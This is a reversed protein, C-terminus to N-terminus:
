ASTCSQTSVAAGSRPAGLDANLEKSALAYSTGPRDPAIAFAMGVVVGAQSVLPGGSDGPHLDSALIFVDRRTQHQDYLDRGVAVVEQRIAAPAVVINNVGNPHGFVAGNTGTSATGIPLPSEPLGNVRLIAIDRDPDFLVVTAARQEGTPLLVSTSHEGAVVHANTIVTNTAVTFGSGEQIRDCALGTVKVTSSEIRTIMAPDMGTSAPPAGTDQSPRLADFVQPFANNGVLRRLTQLTNPPQPLHDDVLRAIASTRAQRSVSGPVDSMAPLLLWLSVIVGLLGVAGGVARDVTRLPGIAVFRRIQAGAILGLAQGVFAGGILVVAAVVLRTTPTSGDFTRIAAPLLRAAIYLGLALGIWSAVRALFGLRWGGIVASIGAVVVILDLLNM